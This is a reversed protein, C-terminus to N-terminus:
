PTSQLDMSQVGMSQLGPSQDRAPKIALLRGLEQVLASIKEPDREATIEQAVQHWDRAPSPENNPRVTPQTTM